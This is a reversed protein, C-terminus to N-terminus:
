DIRGVSRLELDLIELSAAGAGTSRLNFEIISGRGPIGGSFCFEASTLEIERPAGPSAEGGIAAPVEGGFVCGRRLADSVITTVYADGVGDRAATVQMAYFSRDTGLNFVLIATQERADFTVDLRLGASSRTLADILDDRRAYDASATDVVAAFTQTCCTEVGAPCTVVSCGEDEFAMLPQEPAPEEEACGLGLTVLAAAFPL